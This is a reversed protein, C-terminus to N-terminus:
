IELLEVKDSMNASKKMQFIHSAGGCCLRECPLLQFFLVESDGISLQFIESLELRSSERVEELEDEM